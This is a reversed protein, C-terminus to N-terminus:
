EIFYKMNLWKVHTEGSNLVSSSELSYNPNFYQKVSNSLDVDTKGVNLFEKNISSIIDDISSWQIVSPNNPDGNYCCKIGHLGLEQVTNSNGDHRTLRLGIFCKNYIKKLKDQNVHVAEKLFPYLKISREKVSEITKRNSTTIIFTYKNKLLEYVKQFEPCGYLETNVLSTYFYICKGKKLPSYLNFNKFCLNIKKSSIGFHLLDKYIYNSIALHYTNTLDKIENLINKTKESRSYDTDSGGWLIVRIDRHNKIAKVDDNNYCGFFLCPLHGNFYKKLNFNLAFQNEFTKLCSSVRYQFILQNEIKIKKNMIENLKKIVKGDNLIVNQIMTKKNKSEVRKNFHKQYFSFPNQNGKNM